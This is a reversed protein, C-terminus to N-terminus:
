CQLAGEDFVNVIDFPLEKGKEVQWESWGQYMSVLLREIGPWVREARGMRVRESNFAHLARIM